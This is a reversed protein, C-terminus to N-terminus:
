YLCAWIESSSAIVFGKSIMAIKNFPFVQLVELGLGHWFFFHHLGHYTQYPLSKRFRKFPVHFDFQTTQWHLLMGINSWRIPWCSEMRMNCIQENGRLQTDQNITSTIWSSNLSQWYFWALIWCLNNLSKATDSINVEDPCLNLHWRKFLVSACLIDHKSCRKWNKKKLSLSLCLNLPKVTLASKM